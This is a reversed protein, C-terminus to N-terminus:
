QKFSFRGNVKKGDIDSLIAVRYEGPVPNPITATYVGEAKNFKMALSQESGNPLQVQATVKASPITEHSDGKQLLFDLDVGSGAKHGAFEMHYDGTEIVQGGATHPNGGGEKHDHGDGDKHDHGDGEKHTETTPAASTSNAASETPKDTTNASPTASNSGGCAGLFLLGLSAIAVGLFKISQM